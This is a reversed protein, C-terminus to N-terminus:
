RNLIPASPIGSPISISNGLWSASFSNHSWFFLQIKWNADHILRKSSSSKWDIYAVKAPHLRSRKDLLALMDFCMEVWLTNWRPLAKFITSLCVFLLNAENAKLHINYTASNWIKRKSFENQIWAAKTGVAFITRFSLVVAAFWNEIAHIGRSYQLLAHWLFFWWTADNTLISM